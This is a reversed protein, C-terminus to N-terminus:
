LRFEEARGRPWAQLSRDEFKTLMWIDLHPFANDQDYKNSLFTTLKKRKKKLM